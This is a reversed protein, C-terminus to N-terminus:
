IIKEYTTLWVDILERYENNKLEELVKYCEEKTDKSVYDSIYQGYINKYTWELKYNTKNM